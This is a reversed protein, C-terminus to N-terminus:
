KPKKMKQNDFFSKLKKNNKIKSKNKQYNFAFKVQEKYNDIPKFKPIFHEPNEFVEGTKPNRVTRENIKMVIFKGFNIINVNEGKVNTEIIIKFLENVCKQFDTKDVWTRKQIEKILDNKTM